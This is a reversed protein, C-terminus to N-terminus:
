STAQHPRDDCRLVWLNESAALGHGAPLVERVYLPPDVQRILVGQGTYLAVIRDDRRLTPNGDPGIFGLRLLDRRHFVLSMQSDLVTGTPTPRPDAGRAQEVQCPLRVPAKERRGDTRVGAVHAHKVTRLVDDFDGAARIAEGDLPAIEVILPRILRGGYPM